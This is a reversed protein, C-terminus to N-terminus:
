VSFSKNLLSTLKPERPYGLPSLAVTAQEIKLEASEHSHGCLWLKVCDNTIIMYELDTAYGTNSNAEQKGLFRRKHILRPTPLHHTLVVVPGDLGELSTELWTRDQYFARLYEPHSGFVWRSDNMNQFDPLSIDSWLTAGLFTVGDIVTKDRNLLVVGTQEAIEQLAQIVRLHKKKGSYFEHNGPVLLTRPWRARFRVLLDSYSKSVRGHKNLPWGIDGCLCLVERPDAPGNFYDLEQELRRWVKDPRNKHFELHLDSLVRIRMSEQKHLPEGGLSARSTM